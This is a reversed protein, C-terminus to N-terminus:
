VDRSEFIFGEILNSTTLRRFILADLICQKSICVDTLMEVEVGAMTGDCKTCDTVVATYNVFDQQRYFGWSTERREM